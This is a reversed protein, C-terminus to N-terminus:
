LKRKLLTESLENLIVKKEEPIGLAEIGKVAKQFYDEEQNRCLAEVGAKEFLLIVEKVREDDELLNEKYYIDVLAQRDTSELEQMAAVLPFTTKRQIIDGGKIKGTKAPDGFADLYDDKVQFALGLNMGIEYLSTANDLSCNAALGGLQLSAGLLVSTKLRIMELYKETAVDVKEELEMDMQQGWCVDSATQSFVKFLDHNSIKQAQGLYQYAQILLLDGTLIAQNLHYKKYITAQGRRLPADDMIDDHVLSFNHFLEIAYALPLGNRLDESFFHFGILGLLPRIRKGGQEMQYNISEPLDGASDNLRQEKIYDLFLQRYHTLTFM